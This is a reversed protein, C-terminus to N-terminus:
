VTCTNVISRFSQEHHAPIHVNVLEISLEAWERPRIGLPSCTVLLLAALPSYKSRSRHLQDLVISIDRKNPLKYSKSAGHSSRDEYPVTTNVIRLAEVVDEIPENSAALILKLETFIYKASNLYTLQTNLPHEPLYVRIWLAFNAENSAKGCQRIRKSPGENPFYEANREANEIENLWKSRLTREMSQYQRRTKPKISVRHTKIAESVIYLKKSKEIEEALRSINKM